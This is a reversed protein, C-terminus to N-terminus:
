HVHTQTFEPLQHHVPLVPTSCDMPDCLTPCESSFQVSQHFCVASSHSRTRSLFPQVEDLSSQAKEEGSGRVEGVGAPSIRNSSRSCVLWAGVNSVKGEAQLAGGLHSRVHSGRECRQASTIKEFLSM